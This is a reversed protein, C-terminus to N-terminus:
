ISCSIIEKKEEQFFTTLVQHLSFFSKVLSLMLFHCKKFLFTLQVRLYVYGPIQKEWCFCCINFIIQEANMYGNSWMWHIMFIWIGHFVILCLSEGFNRMLLLNKHFLIQCHCLLVHQKLLILKPLTQISIFVSTSFIM